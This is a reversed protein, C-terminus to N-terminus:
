HLPRWDSAQAASMGEPSPAGPAGPAGGGWGAARDMEMYREYEQKKLRADILFGVGIAFPILGAAGGSLVERVRVIAALSGFFTFLGMGVSVLVLGARRARSGDNSRRKYEKLKKYGQFGPPEEGVASTTAAKVTAEDWNPEVPLGQAIRALREHSRIEQSRVGAWISAVVIGLVMACGAVPIIFPSNYWGDADLMMMALFDFVM